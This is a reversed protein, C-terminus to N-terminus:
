PSYVFSNPALTLVIALTDAPNGEASGVHGNAFWLALRRGGARVDLCTSGPRALAKVVVDGGSTPLVSPTSGAVEGHQIPNPAAEGHQIPNPAAEGHQMASGETRESM